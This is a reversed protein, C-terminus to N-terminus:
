ENSDEWTQHILGHLYYGKSADSSFQKFEEISDYTMTFKKANGNTITIINNEADIDEIIGVHGCQEIGNLKQRWVICDGRRLDQISNVDDGYTIDFDQKVANSKWEVGGEIWTGANGMTSSSFQKAGLEEAIENFRGHAYTTCQYFNDENNESDYYDYPNGTKMSYYKTGKTPKETRVTFDINRHNEKKIQTNSITILDQINSMSIGTGFNIQEMETYTPNGLTISDLSSKIIDVLKKKAETLLNINNQYYAGDEEESLGNLRIQNEEIAEDIEEIKKLIKEVNEYVKMHEELFSIDNNVDNLRSYFSDHVPGKWSNDFDSYCTNFSLSINDFDNVCNEIKNNQM